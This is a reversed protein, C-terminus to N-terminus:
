FEMSFL